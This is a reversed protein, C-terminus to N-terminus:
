AKMFESMMCYGAAGTSMVDDTRDKTIGGLAYVPIHVAEVVEKLFDLGKPPVGKKCDTPFIHSATLYTAGLAEARVAEEVSHISAGKITFGSIDEKEFVPMPLHIKLHNLHRAVQPYFHLILEPKAISKEREGCVKEVLKLAKQALKEYEAEPLDKERLIIAKPQLLIVKELQCFFDGKSLHRNTIAIGDRYMFM